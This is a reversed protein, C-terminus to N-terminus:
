HGECKSGAIQAAEGGMIGGRTDSAPVVDSWAEPRSTAHVKVGLKFGKERDEEILPVRM